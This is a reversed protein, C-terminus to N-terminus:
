SGKENHAGCEKQLYDWMDILQKQTPNGKDSVHLEMKATLRDEPKLVGIEKLHEVLSRLDDKTPIFRPTDVKPIVEEKISKNPEPTVAVGSDPVDEGQYVYLGLGFGFAICKVACRMLLTNVDFSTMKEFPISKNRYDMIPLIQSHQEDDATVTVIVFGGTLGPQTHVFGEDTQHYTIHVSKYVKRMELIAHSLSLYSLGNKKELKDSLDVRSLELFKSM